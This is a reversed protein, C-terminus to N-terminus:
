GEVVAGHGGQFDQFKTIIRGDAAMGTHATTGDPCKTTITGDNGLTSQVGASNSTGVLHPQGDAGPEYREFERFGDQRQWQRDIVGNAGYKDTTTGGNQQYSESVKGGRSGDPNVAFTSTKGNGDPVKQFQQSKGDASTVTMDVAGSGDAPKSVTTIPPNHGTSETTM